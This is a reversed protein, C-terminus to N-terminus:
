HARKPRWRFCNTIFRCNICDSVRAHASSAFPKSTGATNTSYEQSLRRHHEKISMRRQVDKTIPDISLMRDMVYRSERDRALDFERKLLLSVFLVCQIYVCLVQSSLTHYTASSQSVNRRHHSHTSKRQSDISNVEDLQPTSRTPLKDNKILRPPKIPESAAAAVISKTSKIDTSRGAISQAANISEPSAREEVVSLRGSRSTSVNAIPNTTAPSLESEDRLRYRNYILHVFFLPKCYDIRLRKSSKSQM